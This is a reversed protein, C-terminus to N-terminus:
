TTSFIRETTIRKTTMKMKNNNVNDDENDDDVAAIHDINAHYQADAADDPDTVEQYWHLVELGIPTQQQRALTHIKEIIDRLIPLETWRSRSIRRGTTLSM